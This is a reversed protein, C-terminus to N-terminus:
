SALDVEMGTPTRWTDDEANLDYGYHTRLIHHRRCLPGLNAASTPGDPWPVAHDLDCEEAPRTCGPM